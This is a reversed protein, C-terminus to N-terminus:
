LNAPTSGVTWRKLSRVISVSARGYLGQTLARAISVVPISADLEGSRLTRLIEISALDGLLDHVWARLKAALARFYQKVFFCHYGLSISSVCAKGSCVQEATLSVDGRLTSQCLIISNLREHQLM